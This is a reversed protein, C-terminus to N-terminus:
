QTLPDKEGYGKADDGKEKGTVGAIEGATNPASFAIYSGDPSVEFNQISWRKSSALVLKLEDQTGPPPAIDETRM